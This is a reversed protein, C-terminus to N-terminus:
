KSVRYFLIIRGTLKYFLNYFSVCNFICMLYVLVKLVVVDNFSDTLISM